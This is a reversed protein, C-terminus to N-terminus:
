KARRLSAGDTSESRGSPTGGSGGRRRAALLLPLCMVFLFTFVQVAERTSRREIAFGRFFREVYGASPGTIALRIDYRPALAYVSALVILGLMM